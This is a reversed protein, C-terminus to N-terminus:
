WSSIQLKICSKKQSSWLWLMRSVDLNDSWLWKFHMVNVRKERKPERMKQLCQEGILRWAGVKAVVSVRGEGEDEWRWGIM